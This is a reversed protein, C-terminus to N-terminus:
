CGRQRHYRDDHGTAEAGTRHRAGNRSVHAEAPCQRCRYCAAAGSFYIALQAATISEIRSDARVVIAFPTRAYEIERLGAAREADTLPRSTLAIHMVGALVAKVAGTSGLTEIAGFQIGADQKRFEISLLNIAGVNAGSGAIRVPQAYATAANLALLCLLMGKRFYKM